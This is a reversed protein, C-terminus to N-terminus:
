YNPQLKILYRQGPVSPLVVDVTEVVRITQTVKELEAGLKEGKWAVWYGNQAILHGTSTLITDLSAFARCIVFAFGDSVAYEEVRSQVVNVNTLQLDIAVQNIFRTKKGNSDLLTFAWDPRAIALPLGPLGAGSGVDLIPGKDIQSLGVLADLLLETVWRDQHISTLNYAQNWKELLSLYRILKAQQQDGIEINLSALGQALKQTWVVETM